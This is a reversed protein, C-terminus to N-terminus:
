DWNWKPCNKIKVGNVTKTYTSSDLYALTPTRRARGEVVAQRRPISSVVNHNRLLETDCMVALYKGIEKIDVNERALDTDIVLRWLGSLIDKINLPRNVNKYHAICRQLYCKKIM